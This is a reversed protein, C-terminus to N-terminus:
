GEQEPSRLSPLLTVHKAKIAQKSENARKSEEREGGGSGRKPGRRRGVVHTHTHIHAPQFISFLLIPGLLCVLCVSLVMLHRGFPVAPRLRFWVPGSGLYGCDDGMGVGAMSVRTEGFGSGVGL